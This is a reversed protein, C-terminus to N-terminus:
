LTKKRTTNKCTISHYEKVQIIGMKPDTMVLTSSRSQDWTQTMHTNNVSILCTAKGPDCPSAHLEARAINVIYM